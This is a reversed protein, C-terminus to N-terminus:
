FHKSFKIHIINIFRSISELTGCASFQLICIGSVDRSRIWNQIINAAQNALEICWKNYGSINKRHQDKEQSLSSKPLFPLLLSINDEWIITYSIPFPLNLAISHASRHTHTQRWVQYVLTSAMQYLTSLKKFVQRILSLNSPKPLFLHQKM